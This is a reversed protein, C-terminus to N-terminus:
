IFEEGFNYHDLTKLIFDWEVTDFAKEFDLLLLLGTKNHKELYDIVDLTKRINFGVLPDSAFFFIINKCLM